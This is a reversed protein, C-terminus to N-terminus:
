LSAIAIWIYKFVLALFFALGTTAGITFLTWKRGIEKWLVGITAACPIYFVVFITFTMMQLHTMVQSLQSTGMAQMLMILSLEKRLIGFILTVGVQKPLSLMYTFPYLLNNIILDWHAYEIVSLVMSGVILIPWAVYVFERLRFWTKLWLVKFSPLRYAPVELMLGPAEEPMIKTMVKGAFAIVFLNLVYIGLAANPGVYFAVLGFIVTSRASCPVLVALMAAIIRERRSELIRTAMVAPVSCGYGLIFPIVSKGHLGIRHMFTDMLYAVRPLYGLDELLSLGFLFPILYPLVIAIGGSFGQIIGEVIKALFTQSGYSTELEKILDNFIDLLPGELYGGFKFVVQFFGYMILILFVYGWLPHMLVDDIRGRIDPKAKRIEAVEEFINLSMAHRESSIALPPEQGRKKKVEAAVKKKLAMLGKQSQFKKLFYPDEELIRLALFRKSVFPGELNNIEIHEALTQVADEICPSYTPIIGTTKEKAVQQVKRFLENLGEGKVAITEVVPIGLVSSLKETNVFIGKRRAEDAMNLCLVMPKNLELLQLTLELSRGLVSTDVVNVIVDIEESILYNRTDIEAWDSSVLSYTGPLDVCNFIQGHLSVKSETFSVTTGPFNSTVAKYSAIHNFITSKGCNPQGVLAIKM